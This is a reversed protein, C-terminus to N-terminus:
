RNEPAAKAAKNEPAAGVARTNTTAAPAGETDETGELPGSYTWGEPLQDGEKGVYFNGDKDQYTGTKSIKAMDPFAGVPTSDPQPTASPAAVQLTVPVREPNKVLPGRMM